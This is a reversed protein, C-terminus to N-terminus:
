NIIRRKMTEIWMNDILDRLKASLDSIDDDHFIGNKDRWWIRKKLLLGTNNDTIDAWIEDLIKIKGQKKIENRISIEYDSM